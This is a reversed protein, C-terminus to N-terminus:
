LIAWITIDMKWHLGTCLAQSGVVGPVHKFVNTAAVVGAAILTAASKAVTKRGIGSIHLSCKSHLRFTGNSPIKM